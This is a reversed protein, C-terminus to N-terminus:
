MWERMSSRALSRAVSEALWWWSSAEALRSERQIESQAELRRRKRERETRSEVPVGVVEGERVAAASVWWQDATKLALGMLRVM